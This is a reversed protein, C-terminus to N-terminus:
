AEEFEAKLDGLRARWAAKSREATEADPLREHSVAVTAKGEEKPVITVVVRSPPEDWDFRASLAARTPRQRMPAGPLWRERREVNTFAALLAAPDGTLTRTASVSYGGAMEHPSRMGRAREYAVTISQAWWSGAGEVEVLWRAIATHSRETAGWEDLLRFWEAHSRGSGRVMAEDSVLGSAGPSEGGSAATGPPTAADGAGAADAAAALLPETSEPEAGAVKRLLQHRAATYSEGTKAMRARVRHKFTKQTTM